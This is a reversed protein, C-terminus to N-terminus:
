LTLRGWLEFWESCWIDRGSGVEGAVTGSKAGKKAAIFFPGAFVM